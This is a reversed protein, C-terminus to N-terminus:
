HHHGQHFYQFSKGGKKHHVEFAEPPHEDHHHHNEEPKSEQEEHRKEAKPSEEIEEFEEGSDPMSSGKESSKGVRQESGSPSSDKLGQEIQQDIHREIKDVVETQSPQMNVAPIQSGVPELNGMFHPQQHQESSAHTLGSIMQNHQENQPHLHRHHHHKQYSMLPQAFHSSASYQHTLMPEQELSVQQKHNAGSEGPAAQEFSIHHQNSPEGGLAVFEHQQNLLHQQTVVNKQAANLRLLDNHNINFPNFQNQNLSDAAFMLQDHQQQQVQPQQQKQQNQNPTRQFLRQRNFLSTLSAFSPSVQLVIALLGFVIFRVILQKMM